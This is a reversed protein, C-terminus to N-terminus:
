MRPLCPFTLKVPQRLYPRPHLGRRSPRHNLRRIRHKGPRNGAEQQVPGPRRDLVQVSQDGEPACRRASTNKPLPGYNAALADFGRSATMLAFGGGMCFGIVGVRGSCDDRGLLWRRSREIAEYAAGQGSSLSRLAAQVCRLMGGRTYLTRPWLRTGPHVLAVMALYFDAVANDADDADVGCPAGGGEVPEVVLDERPSAGPWLAAADDPKHQRLSTFCPDTRSSRNIKRGM